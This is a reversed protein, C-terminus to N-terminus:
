HLLLIIRCVTVPSCIKVNGSKDKRDVKVGTSMKDLTLSQIHLCVVALGSILIPNQGVYSIWFALGWNGFCNNCFPWVKGVFAQEKVEEGKGKWIVILSLCFAKRICSAESRTLGCGAKWSELESSRWDSYIQLRGKSKKKKDGVKGSRISNFDALCLHYYSFGKITYSRFLYGKKTRM